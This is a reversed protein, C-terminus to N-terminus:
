DFREGFDGSYDDDNGDDLSGDDELREENQREVEERDWKNEGIPLSPDYERSNPNNGLYFKPDKM